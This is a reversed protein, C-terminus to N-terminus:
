PDEGKVLHVVADLATATEEETVVPREVVEAEVVSPEGPVLAVLEDPDWLRELDPPGGYGEELNQKAHGVLFLRGGPALWSWSQQVLSEVVEPGLHLYAILVLDFLEGDPDWRTVDDEVWVLRIERREALNRGREVAVASFDVATVTWGEKALWIANRGEGAALDLARGAPVDALRDAVFLNPAASWLLEAERYREDWHADDFTM